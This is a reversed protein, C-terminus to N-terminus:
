RSIAMESGDIYDSYEIDNVATVTNTIVIEITVATISTSRSILVEMVTIVIATITVKFRLVYRVIYISLYVISYNYM